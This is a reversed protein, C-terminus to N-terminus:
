KRVIFFFWAFIWTLLNERIGNSTFVIWKTESGHRTYFILWHCVSQLSFPEHPRNNNNNNRKKESTWAATTENNWFTCAPFYMETKKNTHKNKKGSWCTTSKIRQLYYAWADNKSEKIPAKLFCMQYVAPLACTFFM